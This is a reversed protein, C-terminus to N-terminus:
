SELAKVGDRIRRVALDLAADSIAHRNRHIARLHKELAKLAIVADITACRKKTETM